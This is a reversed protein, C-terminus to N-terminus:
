TISCHPQTIQMVLNMMEPEKDGSDEDDTNDDDPEDDAPDGDDPGDDDSEYDDTQASQNCVMTSKYDSACLGNRSERTSVSCGQKDRLM